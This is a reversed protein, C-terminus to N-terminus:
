ASMHEDWQRRTVPVHDDAEDTMFRDYSGPWCTVTRVTAGDEAGGAM